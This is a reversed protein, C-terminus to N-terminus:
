VLPIEIGAADGIGMLTCAIRQVIGADGAEGIRLQFGRQWCAEIRVDPALIGADVVAPGIEQGIWRLSDSPGHRSFLDSLASRQM